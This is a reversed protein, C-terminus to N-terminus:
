SRDKKVYFFDTHAGKGFVADAMAIPLGLCIAAVGGFIRAVLGSAGERRSSIYAAKPMVTCGTQGASWLVPEGKREVLRLGFEEM